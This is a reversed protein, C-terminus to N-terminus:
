RVFNRFSSLLPDQTARMWELLRQILARIDAKRDPDDILNHLADPDSGFAYFEEPARHLFLEVRDAIRPNTKAAEIMAAMTLGSQSENKFVTEGDSWANFIYGSTRTQICRMEYRRKASTEHFVTFVADREKQKSGALVPLFSHGDMDEVRPLGAAELITPMYDIGSIMHEDDVAGPKVTGPWRAIWPTKTSNLYCNTKAFPFAMGNDSLFMVLTNDEFGSEKLARLIAGVTEDCRHVSTYYQATERLVDPVDPLFGPLEAERATIRRSYPLHKHFRDLEQKSGAFPRHPDHSNAMLFFPKNESSAKELFQRVHQHYLAPDRGVGLEKMHVFYDWCYKSRPVLHATKGLIGNLYGAARLQEQLTPVDEDIPQFGEAGNRHPYRGTMLVSRSPQCVAISVHGHNFRVGESALRDINPTIDRVKCGFAGVSSWNLDDATIFVFNPRKEGNNPSSFGLQPLAASAGAALMRNLFGRRTGTTHM